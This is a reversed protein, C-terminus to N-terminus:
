RHYICTLETCGLTGHRTKIGMTVSFLAGGQGPFVLSLGKYLLLLGGPDMTPDLYLYGPSPHEMKSADEIGRPPRRHDRPNDSMGALGPSFAKRPLHPDIEKM